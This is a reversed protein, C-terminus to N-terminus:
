EQFSNHGERECRQPWWCFIVYDTNLLAGESPLEADPRYRKAANLMDTGGALFEIM